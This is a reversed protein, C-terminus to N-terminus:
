SPANLKEARSCAMDIHDDHEDEYWVSDVVDTLVNYVITCPKADNPYHALQWLDKPNLAGYRTM